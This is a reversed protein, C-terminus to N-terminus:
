FFAVSGRILQKKVEDNSIGQELNLEKMLAVHGDVSQDTAEKQFPEIRLNM